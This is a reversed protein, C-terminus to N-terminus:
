QIYIQINNLAMTIDATREPVFRFEVYSTNEPITNTKIIEAFVNTVNVYGGNISSSDSKFFWTQVNSSGTGRCTSKLIIDKGIDESSLPTRVCIFSYGTDTTTRLLHIGDNEITIIVKDPNHVIFDNISNLLKGCTWQNHTALNLKDKVFDFINKFQYYVYECGGAM